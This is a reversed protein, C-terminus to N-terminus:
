TELKSDALGKLFSCFRGSDAWTTSPLTAMNTQLEKIHQAAVRIWISYFWESVDVALHPYIFMDLPIASPDPNIAKQAVM